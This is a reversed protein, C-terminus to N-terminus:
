VHPRFHQGNMASYGTGPRVCGPGTDAATVGIHGYEKRCRILREADIYQSSLQLNTSRLSQSTSGFSLIADTFVDHTYLKSPM